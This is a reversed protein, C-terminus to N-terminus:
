KLATKASVRKKAVIPLPNSQKADVTYPGVQLAQILGVRSIGVMAGPMVLEPSPGIAGVSIQFEFALDFLGEHYKYHKVLLEALDRLPMTVAGNAPSALPNNSQPM